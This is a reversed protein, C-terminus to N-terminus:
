ELLPVEGTVRYPGDKIIKIRMEKENAAMIM